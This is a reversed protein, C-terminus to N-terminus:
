AKEEAKEEKKEGDGSQNKLYDDYVAMAENVKAHLASDDDLSSIITLVPRPELRM